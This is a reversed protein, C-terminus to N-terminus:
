ERAAESDQELIVGELLRGSSQKGGPVKNWKGKNKGLAGVVVQCM